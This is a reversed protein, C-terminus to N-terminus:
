AAGMAALMTADGNLDKALYYSFLASVIAIVLGLPGSLALALGAFLITWWSIQFSGYVDSKVAKEFRRQTHRALRRSGGCVLTFEPRLRRYAADFIGAIRDHTYTEGKYEVASSTSFGQAALAQTYATDSCAIACMPSPM